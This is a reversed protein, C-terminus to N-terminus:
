EINFIEDFEKKLEEKFRERRLAWKQQCKPDECDDITNIGMYNKM